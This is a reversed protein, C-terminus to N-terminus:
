TTERQKEFSADCPTSIKLSLLSPMQEPDNGRRPAMLQAMRNKDARRNHTGVLAGQQECPGESGNARPHEQSCPLYKRQELV